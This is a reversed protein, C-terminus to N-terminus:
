VFNAWEGWIRLPECLLFTRVAHARIVEAHEVAPQWVASLDVHEKIFSLSLDTSLTNWQSSNMQQTSIDLGTVLCKILYVRVPQGLFLSNKKKPRCYMGILHQHQIEITIEQLVNSQYLQFLISITICKNNYKANLIYLYLQNFYRYQPVMHTKKRYM